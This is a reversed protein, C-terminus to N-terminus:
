LSCILDFDATFRSYIQQLGAKVQYSKMRTKTYASREIMGMIRTGRDRYIMQLMIDTQRLM